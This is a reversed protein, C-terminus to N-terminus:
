IGMHRLTELSLDGMALGNDKQYRQLAQSLAFTWQSTPMELYGLSKLLNSIKLYLNPTREDACVVETERPFGGKEVLKQCEITEYHFDRYFITDALVRVERTLAPIEVLCLNGEANREWKSKPPTIVITETRLPADSESGNYIPFRLTQSAYRAPIICNKFCKGGQERNEQHSAVGGRTSNKAPKEVSYVISQSCATFLFLLPTFRLLLLNNM